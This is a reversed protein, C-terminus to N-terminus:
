GLPWAQAWRVTTVIPTYRDARWLLVPFLPLRACHPLILRFTFTHADCLPLNLPMRGGTPCGRAWYLM